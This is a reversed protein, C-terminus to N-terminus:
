EHPQHGSPEVAVRKARPTVLGGSLILKFADQVRMESPDDVRTGLDRQATAQPTEAPGQAAAQAMVAM